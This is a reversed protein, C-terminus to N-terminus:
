GLFGKLKDKVTNFRDSMTGGKNFQKITNDMSQNSLKLAGNKLNFADVLGSRTAGDPINKGKSLNDLADRFESQAQPVKDNFAAFAAAEDKKFKESEIAEDFTKNVEALSKPFNLSTSSPSAIIKPKAASIQDCNPMKSFSSPDDVLYEKKHKASIRGRVDFGPGKYRKDVLYAPSIDIGPKVLLFEKIFIDFTKFQEPNVKYEETDNAVFILNLGDLDYQTSLPNMVSDIPRGRQLDGNRLIVYHAQIGFTLGGSLSAATAADRGQTSQMEKRQWELSRKHIEKANVKDPPGVLGGTFGVILHKIATEDCNKMRKSSKFESRLENPVLKLFQYNEPTNGGRFKQSEATANIINTVKVSSSVSSRKNINSRLNTNGGQEIFNKAKEVGPITTPLNTSKVASLIDGLKGPLMGKFKALANPALNAKSRGIGGLKSLPNLLAGADNAKNKLIDKYKNEAVENTKTVPDNEEKLSNVVTSESLALKKIFGIRKDESLSSGERKALNIVSKPSCHTTIRKLKSASNKTKGTISSIASLQSSSKNFIGGLFDSSNKGVQVRKQLTDQLKSMDQISTIGGKSEFGKMICGDNMIKAFEQSNVIDQATEEFGDAAQFVLDATGKGIAAETEARSQIREYEVRIERYAVNTTIQIVHLNDRKSLKWGSQLNTFFGKSSKKVTVSVINPVDGANNPLVVEKGSGKVSDTVM